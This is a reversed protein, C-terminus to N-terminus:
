KGARAQASQFVPGWQPHGAENPALAFSSDLQLIRVFTDECLQAFDRVCYSFAQLKFAEIRMPTPASALEGSTAVTRIVSGYQGSSYYERVQSMVSEAEASAPAESKSSLGTCGGLLALVCLLVPLVARNKTPMIIQPMPPNLCM